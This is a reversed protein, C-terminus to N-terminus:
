LLGLEQEIEKITDLRIYSRVIIPIPKEADPLPGRSKRVEVWPPLRSNKSYVVYYRPKKSRAFFRKHVEDLVEKRVSFSFRLEVLTHPIEGLALALYSVAEKPVVVTNGIVDRPCTRLERSSLLLEILRDTGSMYSECEIGVLEEYYRFDPHWAKIEIM